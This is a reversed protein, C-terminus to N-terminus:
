KRFERVLLASLLVIVGGAIVLLYKFSEIRKDRQALEWENSQIKEGLVEPQNKNSEIDKKIVDSLSRPMIRLGSSTKNLIGTVSVIEGEKFYKPSIGTNKKIYVRIEDTGDDMYIISSKQEVVEGTISILQGLYKNSIQDCKLEQAQLERGKELIVMDDKTKTKLRKEGNIESLEGIVEIYDGLELEPFDKYYNYVQVGAPTSTSSDVIYFYQTGFIGPKVAVVGKTIILDGSEYNQIDRLSLKEYEKSNKNNSIKVGAVKPQVYALSDSVSIVNEEGPTIRSTWYFEGDKGRSFSEGEVSKEYELEDILEEFDNFLRVKENSNNLVLGSEIRELVYFDNPEIWQDSIFQYPKSGGDADDVKWNLLNIKEQSLNKLEIFEGDQDRGKPNPLIENIVIEEQGESGRGREKELLPNLHSKSVGSQGREKELLPNPHPQIVSIEKERVVENEGDSVELKIIYDGPKAYGHEPNELTLKIGDGFDWEFSLEDGDEDFTDSSDFMIPTNALVEDPFYFDVVPPHNIEQIINKKEPTVVETWVYSVSNRILRETEKSVLSYSWGEVADKYKVIQFAKDELPRFLKVEDQVNNLVIKSDTRKIVLYKQPKLFLDDKIEYRKKSNDGLKWGKLNVSREGQNFIEIFEKKNDVGQPNPFIESIIIEDSYDFNARKQPDVEQVSQPLTIINASGKTPTTTVVFDNNDNYTNQGDWKRAVSNPDNAFPANSARGEWNGYYVQDILEDDSDFLAILDGKNNLNGRPKEIVFYKNEGSRSIVGKLKTIAGSGEKIYWNELDIDQDYLTNYLEIWEIDDDSPDSVFENIVIDGNKVKYVNSSRGSKSEESKNDEAKQENGSDGNNSNQDQSDNEIKCESSCADGNEVNGDDCEESDDLNGDGCVGEPPSSQSYEGNKARPTGGIEASTQWSLDKEREMTQKTTNDGFQWGDGFDILDIVNGNADKLELKEGSNGLAGVYILDAQADPVSTDDTRELLFYGGAAIVGTLNIEPTGDQAVLVWGELNIEENTTNYLEIWEDNTSNITGMWAIENIIVVQSEAVLFNVPFFLSFILFIFFTKPFSKLM